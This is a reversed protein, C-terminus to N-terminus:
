LCNMMIALNLHTTLRKGGLTTGKSNRKTYKLVKKNEDLISLRWSGKGGCDRFAYIQSCVIEMPLISVMASAFLGESLFDVLYTKSCLGHSTVFYSRDKLGFYVPDPPPLDEGGEEPKKEITWKNAGEKLVDWGAFGDQGSPNNIYNKPALLM